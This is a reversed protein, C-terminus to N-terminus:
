RTKPQDHRRRKALCNPPAVLFALKAVVSHGYPGQGADFEITPFGRAPLTVAVRIARRNTAASMAEPSAVALRM